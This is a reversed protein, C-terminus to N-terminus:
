HPTELLVVFTFLGARNDEGLENTINEDPRAAIKGQKNVAPQIISVM